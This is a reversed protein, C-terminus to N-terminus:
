KKFPNLSFETPVPDVGRGGLPHCRLIRYLALISGRIPGFRRVAIYAYESCTPIYRCTPPTLPSIIRRYGLIIGLIVAKFAQEMTKWYKILERM